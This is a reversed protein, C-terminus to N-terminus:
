SLLPKMVGIKKSSCPTNAFRCDGPYQCLRQITFAPYGSRRTSGTRGTLFNITASKDVEKFNIRRGIGLDVLHPLQELVSHIRWGSTAELDVHDVFDM